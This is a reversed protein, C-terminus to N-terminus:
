MELGKALILQFVLLVIILLVIPLLVIKKNVENNVTPQPRINWANAFVMPISLLTVFFPASAREWPMIRFPIILIIGIISALIAIRSLYGFRSSANETISNSPALQLLYKSYLSGILLMLLIGTISIIFGTTQSLGLYAFAQGTDTDPAMFATIFQPISQAFGEFAMWLFFLHLWHPSNKMARAIIFCIIATIFIAVAGYGQALDDMPHEDYWNHNNHYLVAQLGLWSKGLALFLEQIFFIINFALAYLVASNIILASGPYSVKNKATRRTKVFGYIGWLVPIILLLLPLLHGPNNM